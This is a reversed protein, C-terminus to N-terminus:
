MYWAFVHHVNVEVGRDRAVRKLTEIIGNSQVIGFHIGNIELKNGGKSNVTLSSVMFSTHQMSEVDEWKINSVIEGGECFVLGEQDVEM